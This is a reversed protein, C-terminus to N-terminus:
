APRGQSDQARQERLEALLEEVDVGILTGAMGKLAARVREPDYNAFPDDDERVVRFRARRTDILIPEDMAHTLVQAIDSDPGVMITKLAATM